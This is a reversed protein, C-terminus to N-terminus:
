NDHLNEKLKLLSKKSLYINKNASDIDKDSYRVLFHGQNNDEISINDKYKKSFTKILSKEEQVRKLKKDILTKINQLELLHFKVKELIKEDQDSILTVQIDKIKTNEIEEHLEKEKKELDKEIRKFKDVEDEIKSELFKYREEREEPNM